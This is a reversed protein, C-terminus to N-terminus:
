FIKFNFYRDLLNDLKSLPLGVVNFYCGDIKEVLIAGLDQIGYSGAKDNPEKTSIYRIIRDSSLEKFKVKTIEYDVVKINLDAKIISIGTIVEHVNGSLMKLMRYADNDDKPKGLIEGKFVVITDAGIVIDNKYDYSVELSKSFALSMSIQEPTEGPNLKEEIDSQVIIPNLNLRELMEKRRPSSSALIIRNM